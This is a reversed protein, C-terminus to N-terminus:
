KPVGQQKPLERLFEGVTGAWAEAHFITGHGYGGPLLVFRASPVRAITKRVAPSLDVPNVQDDAFNIQLLPAKIRGIAPLPDYDFSSVYDYLSDNADRGRYAAVLRDYYALTRARDPGAQQMGKPTGVMLTFMPAAAQMWLTPPRKPDYDGGQWAPDNRISRIVIERWILNRGSIQMPMCAVAVLADMAEPYREGWLWTQMAGQSIGAVLRLHDIGMGALMAHQAEVQDIYGYKPFRAHLGDSPKTSGGTGIGDPLVIFFRRADLPQGPRFLNGALSPMLFLKGAATTSHLLLVANVIRGSADRQPTGLTTYHLKLQPMREGSQFAFDRAVVDGEQPQAPQAGAPTRTASLLAVALLVARLATATM